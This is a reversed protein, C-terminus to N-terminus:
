EKLASQFMESLEPGNPFRGTELKSFLVQGNLMIEFAGTTIQAQMFTPVFFFLGLFVYMGHQKCFKYWSPPNTSGGSFPIFNWLTDGVFIFAVTMLQLTSIISQLLLIYEPIPPNGGDIKGRLEPFEQELFQKITLYNRQMGWSVCFEIRVQHDSSNSARQNTTTTADTATEM